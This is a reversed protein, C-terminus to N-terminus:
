RGQSLIKQTLVKSHEVAPQDFPNIHLWFGVCATAAEYLFFLAGVTEASVRDFTLTYTPRQSKELTALTADREAHFVEAMTHGGLLGFLPPSAATSSGAPKPLPFQNQFQKPALCEVLKDEPGDLFLQM